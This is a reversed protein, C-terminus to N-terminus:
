HPCSRRAKCTQMDNHCFRRKCSLRQRGLHKVLFTRRHLLSNLFVREFNFRLHGSAPFGRGGFNFNQACAPCGCIRCGQPSFATCM